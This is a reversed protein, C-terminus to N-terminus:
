SLGAFQKVHDVLSEDIKVTFSDPTISVNFGPVATILHVVCYPVVSSHRIVTKPVFILPVLM